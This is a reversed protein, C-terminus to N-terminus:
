GCVQCQPNYLVRNYKTEYNILDIELEKGVLNCSKYDLYFKYLELSIIKSIIKYYFKPYFISQNDFNSYQKVFYKELDTFEYNNMKRLELCNLCPTENPIIIPGINANLNKLQGFIFTLNDELCRKNIFKCLDYNYVGNFYILLDFKNISLIKSIKEIDKDNNELEFNFLNNIGVKILDENLYNITLSNGIILISKKNIDFINNHNINAFQQILNFKDAIGADAEIQEILVKKNILNIILENIDDYNYKKSLEEISSGAKFFDLIGIVIDTNQTKIEIVDLPTKIIIKDNKNEKVSIFRNLKYVM